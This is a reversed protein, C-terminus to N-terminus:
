LAQEKPQGTSLADLRNLKLLEMAVGLAIAAPEKGLEPLGIPCTIRAIQAPSHGLVVLRKQFRAWKTASGILGAFEFSHSLIQHCLELDLAHSYTLVLHQADSPAYRVVDAPNQSVLQTVGRPLTEPYRAPDTDIWTIAFDLPLLAHVLARGVHGAGYIWLPQGAGTMEESFTGVKRGADAVPPLGSLVSRSFRNQPEILWEIEVAGFVECLLSVSGGCCQGLAPGLPVNRKQRLWNGDRELAARAATVAQYELTGGGITGSQGDKWVLMSTGKDRPTSGKTGTIVIRAVRGHATVCDRLTKLDFGM